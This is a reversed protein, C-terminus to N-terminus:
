PFPSGNAEKSDEAWSPPEGGRLRGTRVDCSCYERSTHDQDWEVDAVGLAKTVKPVKHGEIM